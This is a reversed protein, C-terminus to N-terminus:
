KQWPGPLIRGGRQRHLEFDALIERAAAEDRRRVYVERAPGFFAGATVVEIRESDLLSKLFVIDAPEGEYVKIPLDDNNM